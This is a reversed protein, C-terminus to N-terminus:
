ESGAESTDDIFRSIEEQYSKELGQIQSQVMQLIEIDEEDQIQNSIYAQLINISSKLAIAHILNSPLFYSTNLAASAIGTLDISDTAYSFYWIKGKQTAGPEPLIKLTAAGANASDFHYIPSYATAYYISNSDGARAFVDRDVYLCEREIGSSNSDIRTVKLIKRDEVLWESNSELVGPTKSYKLLLDESIMDAVENFAANILDKYSLDPTTSYEAGILDTIREAITSGPTAM